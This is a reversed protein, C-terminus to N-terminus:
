VASEFRAFYERRHQQYARFATFPSAAALLWLSFVLGRCLAEILRTPQSAAVFFCGVALASVLGLLSLHLRLVRLAPSPKCWSHPHVALNYAAGLAPWLGFALFLFGIPTLVERLSSAALGAIGLGLLLVLVNAARSTINVSPTVCRGSAGDLSISNLPSFSPACRSVGLGSCHPTLHRVLGPVILNGTIPALCRLSRTSSRLRCRRVVFYRGVKPVVLAPRRPRARGMSHRLLRAAMPQARMVATSSGRVVGVHRFNFAIVASNSCCSPVCILRHRLRSTAYSSLAHRSFLPWGTNRRFCPRASRRAPTPGVLASLSRPWPQSRSSLAIRLRSARCAGNLRRVIDLEAALLFSRLSQRRTRQLSTNPPVRRRRCRPQRAAYARAPKRQGIVSHKRVRGSALVTGASRGASLSTRRPRHWSAHFRIVLGARLQRSRCSRLPADPRVASLRSAVFRAERADSRSRGGFAHEVRALSDASGQRHLFRRHCSCTSSVAGLSGSGLIFRYPRRRRAAFLQSTTATVHARLCRIIAM